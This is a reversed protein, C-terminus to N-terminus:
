YVKYTYAAIFVNNVLSKHCAQYAVTFFTNSYRTQLFSHVKKEELFKNEYLHTRRYM